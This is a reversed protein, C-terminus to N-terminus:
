IMGITRFIFVFATMTIVSLLTTAMIISSALEGDGEMGVAIIYSVTATPVGFLIYILIIDASEFGMQWAAMVALLPILVLKLATAKLAPALNNFIVGVDVSAGISLLALPTALAELYGATRLITSPIQIDAIAALFGAFIGIIMPNKALEMLSDKLNVKVERNPNNFSFIIVALINYLPMTVALMMPEKAGLSGTINEILSFGVYLFNGRFSGQIFAGRQSQNNIIFYSIIWAFVVSLVVGSMIFVYFGFDLIESLDVARVDNFLKIPLAIYFILRNASKVFDHDIWNRKKLMYGALMVLFIPAAIGISFMLNDVM